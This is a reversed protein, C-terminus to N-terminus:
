RELDWGEMVRGKTRGEDRGRNLELCSERLMGDDFGGEGAETEVYVSGTEGIFKGMTGKSDDVSILDGGGIRTWPIVVRDWFKIKLGEFNVSPLILYGM